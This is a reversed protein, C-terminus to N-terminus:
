KEKTVQQEFREIIHKIVEHNWKKGFRTAVGRDNLIRAIARLSLGSQWHRNMELVVRYESPEMVLKGELYTFGFPTTGSKMVQTPDHKQKSGRSFDRITVGAKRLETLVKTRSQGTRKGIQRLSLGSEYLAKFEACKKTKSKVSHRIYDHPQFSNNPSKGPTPKLGGIQDASARSVAFSGDAAKSSLHPRDPFCIVNSEIPNSASVSQNKGRAGKENQAGGNNMPPIVGLKDRYMILGDFLASILRKKQSGTSKAWLTKFEILGKEIRQRVEKPKPQSEIFAELEMAEQAHAKKAESLKLLELKILETGDPVNMERHLQFTKGIDADLSNMKQRLGQLRKVYNSNKNDSAEEIKGEVFDLYGKERMYRELYQLVDGELEDARIRKTTCTLTDGVLHRHRYYRHPRHKGHSAGGFYPDGCEACRLIGTLFFVRTEKKALRESQAYHSVEIIEQTADFTKQDVIAPWSAKAIQHREYAKLTDQDESKNTKNVERKGVYALNTLLHILTQRHWLGRNAARNKRKYNAKPKIGLQNLRLITKPCSGEEIFIEFIRRVDDAEPENVIYTSCNEPAKDYGLVVGGGNLLGRQARAHFNQSVRESTQKREFQALNIMNFVMMEGAPTSTDFQEKMSLFKANHKKLDELLLCFDLINRSLRSLDTVLILNIKGARIDRMMKQYAPRKTDKASYGDDLYTEIHKGWKTEQLNKIDVFSNLRHNQSDLSGELVQAQEDTSVRIYYGIKHPM